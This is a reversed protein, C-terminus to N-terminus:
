LTVNVFRSSARVNSSVDVKNLGTKFITSGCSLWLENRQGDDVSVIKVRVSSANFTESLMSWLRLDTVFGDQDPYHSIYPNLESRLFYEGLPVTIEEDARVSSIILDNLSWLSSLSSRTEDAACALAKLAIAIYEKVNGLKQLCEAWMDLMTIGLDAWEKDNYFSSLQKFYSAAAIYDKFNFCLVALDATMAEAMKSRGGIVYHALANRTLREYLASFRGKSQLGSKLVANFIGSCAALLNPSSADCTIPSQRGSDGSLEIEEMSDDQQTSLKQVYNFGAKWGKCRYALNTLSRRSLSLLDGRHAALDQAGPHPTGPPFLRLAGLSTVSASFERPAPTTTSPSRFSLSSTRHPFHNRQAISDNTDEINGPHGMESHPNEELQRLPPDIQLSLSQAFTASLICHSASFTWSAVINEVIEEQPLESSSSDGDRRKYEATPSAGIDQRITWASSAIFDLSLRCVDALISLNEDEVDNPKTFPNLIAKFGPKSTSTDTESWKPSQANALRLLLSVQRAFVYNQFDFISIDNALILDRFPKRETDLISAGLDLDISTNPDEEIDQNSAIASTYAQQLDDTSEVFRTTRQGSSQARIQEEVIDGLSTALEHYSTLADEVLGVSEFGRALGEKLIFFTNFNWGPLNRQLEKEKIDEEYQQVRLDFSALILSKLKAVLDEWGSKGDQVKGEADNSERVPEPVQVQSVRDVANKSTGNFDARIKEIVTKSTRSSWRPNNPTRAGEVDGRASSNPKSSNAGEVTAYTVHVILWEFADHNEQKNVSTSSQSAPGHEKIWDRLEKRTTARYADVDECDVLYLKLYPTQRLGPIQHRRKKKTPEKQPVSVHTSKESEGNTATPPHSSTTKPDPILDIHLSSISRLPRSVSNWHLNRLPLYSELTPKM